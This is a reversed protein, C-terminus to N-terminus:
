VAVVHVTKTAWPRVACLIAIYLMTDTPGQFLIFVLEGAAPTTAVTQQLLGDAPQCLDDRQSQLSADEVDMVAHVYYITLAVIPEEVIKRKEERNGLFRSLQFNM